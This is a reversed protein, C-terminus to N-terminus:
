KIDDMAQLRGQYVAPTRSLKALEEKTFRGIEVMPQGPRYIVLEDDTTHLYAYALMGPDGFSDISGTIPEFGESYVRGYGEIIHARASRVEENINRKTAGLMYYFDVLDADSEAEPVNALYEELTAFPLPADPDLQGAYISHWARTNGAKALSKQGVLVKMAELGDRTLIMALQPVMSSPYGDFHCYRAHIKKDKLTGIISRTSM